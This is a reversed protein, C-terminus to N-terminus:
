TDFHPTRLRRTTRGDTLELELRSLGHPVSEFEFRSASTVRGEHAVSAQTLTARVLGDPEVWGDIRSGSGTTEVVRLLVQVGDASFEILTRDDASGRAGLLRDSRTTLTLLEHDADLHAMAIATLIRDPLDGPMPDWGRWAGALHDLLPDRRDPM